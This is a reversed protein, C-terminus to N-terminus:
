FADATEQSQPSVNLMAYYRKLSTESLPQRKDDLLHADLEDSLQKATELMIDFRDADITEHGSLTMFLCLGHVSFVGMNQLDFVGSPTAAALSFLVPGHGNIQQHRHFLQGDGFRLGMGLLSQLLDYGAFQRKDKALLFLMVTSPSKINSAAVEFPKVEDSVKTPMPIFPKKITPSSEQSVLNPTLKRVAIIEDDNPKDFPTQAPVRSSVPNHQSRAKVVRIIAFIVGLLLLINVVLSWSAQM